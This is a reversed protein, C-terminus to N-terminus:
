NTKWFGGKIEEPEVGFWRMREITSVYIYTSEKIKPRIDKLDIRSFLGRGGRDHTKVGEIFDLTNLIMYDVEYLEGSITDKKGSVEIFPFGSKTDYMKFGTVIVDEIFKADRLYTSLKGDKKLTGYVIVKKM